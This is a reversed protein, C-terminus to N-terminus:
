SGSSGIQKAVQELSMNFVLRRAIQWRGKNLEFIAIAQRPIRAAEVGEMESGEIPEFAIECAVLRFPGKEIPSEQVECSLWSLGHPLGSQRGYDLVALSIQQKDLFPTPKRWFPLWSSNM